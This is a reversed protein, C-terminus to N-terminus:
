SQSSTSGYGAQEQVQSSSANSQRRRGQDEEQLGRLLRASHEASYQGEIVEDLPIQLWLVAASALSLLQLIEICIVCTLTVSKNMAYSEMLPDQCSTQYGFAPSKWCADPSTKPVSRDEVSSFGCCSLRTEIDKLKRPHLDYSDQWAKDLISGLKAQQVLTYIVLGFLSIVLTSLIVGYLFVLRRSETLTSACGIVSAVLILMSLIILIWSLSNLGLLNLSINSLGSVGVVALGISMLKLLM